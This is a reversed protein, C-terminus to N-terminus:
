PIGGVTTNDAVDKVVVANPAITVNNGIHINGIIRAGSGIFVNHGIVPSLEGINKHGITINPNLIANRGIRVKDNIIIPGYHYITLGPGVVNIPIQYGTKISLMRLKHSYYIVFLKNVITLKKNYYFELYRLTKIYKWILYTSEIPSAFLNYRIRSYWASMQMPYHASDALLFANMQEIDEIM